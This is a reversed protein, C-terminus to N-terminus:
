NQGMEGKTPESETDKEQEWYPDMDDEDEWDIEVKQPGKDVFLVALVTGTLAGFLHSEWSIQKDMFFPFIGWVMGGYLFITLFSIALLNINNRILGSFFLFAAEGYILGSAGIHSSSRACIWVCTGGILWILILTRIAIPSYFYFMAMTLIFLPVSNSILHPLNAHVLPAFLIGPLGCFTRPYIGLSDFSVGGLYELGKVAWIIGLLLLPIFSARTLKRKEEQDVSM